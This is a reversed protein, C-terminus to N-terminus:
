PKFMIEHTVKDSSSIEDGFLLEYYKGKSWNEIMHGYNPNGPNGSQSGPYVAWAKTGKPDLEVVMRWSPGATSSAANVIGKGGGIEILQDSFPRIELLHSIRTNKFRYWSFDEDNKQIWNSLSDVAKNFSLQYLQQANEVEDTKLVDFFEFNSQNTLLYNTVYRHPKNISVTVTDYEDWISNYLIDWWIQYRTASKSDAENFYDWAALDQYYIKEQISLASTDVNQLMSPLSESAHYNFNDNQLSMLDEPVINNMKKLRDNIRRGRYVEYNHDYIYYPYKENVPHQNASSLFGRKPNLSWLRHEFPIRNTWEQDIQSGDLLFKGKGEPKIPFQGPLNIAIDGSSSGFLFNQPPGSFFKLANEFEEYNNARNIKYMANYSGGPDHAIWRMSYNNKEGYFNRDYVLPGHHVYIITDLFNKQGRVKIKEIVKETKFWQNNYWYENRNNDKFEIKYWDVQDRPSNTVGWAISDNFGILLLPTGPLTVGMTNLDDTHLHAAHWISPHTLKLDPENAFIVNGNKTKEPGVVFNNSGYLPNPKDITNTTKSIQNQFVGIAKIPDFKWKVENPIVPDLNGLQEPFMQNFFDEGFLSLANTNELDAESRSLTNSLMAYAFCSKLPSWPEPEYDLLKFEIPYEAYSLENIYYNVGNSYSDVASSLDDNKQVEILLEHTMKKLGIRRNLRDLNIAREGVVESIRGLVIRSFFDMQWLRDKATLYGQIFYLDQNNQAYIHPINLDDFYVNVPNKLNEISIELDKREEIDEINQLYGHWPSLFKGLPPADGIKTNLTIGLAFAISLFLIFRFTKM